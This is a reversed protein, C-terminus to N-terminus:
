MSMCLERRIKTLVDTLALVIEPSAAGIVIAGQTRFTILFRHKGFCAEQVIKFSFNLGLRCNRRVGRYAQPLRGATSGNVSQITRISRAFGYPRCGMAVTEHKLGV